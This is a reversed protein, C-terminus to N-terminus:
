ITYRVELKFKEYDNIYFNVSDDYKLRIEKLKDDVNMYEKAKNLSNKMTNIVQNSEKSINDLEVEYASSLSEIIAENEDNKTNLIFIVRTLQSIKKCMRDYNESTDEM